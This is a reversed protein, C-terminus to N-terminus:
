SQRNGNHKFKVMTVLGSDQLLKWGAIAGAKKGRTKFKTQTLLVSLYLVKGPLLLSFVANSLALQGGEDTVSLTRICSKLNALWTTAFLDLCVKRYIYYSTLKM